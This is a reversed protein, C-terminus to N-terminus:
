HSTHIAWSAALFASLQNPSVLQTAAVYERAAQDVTKNASKLAEVAALYIRRDLGTLELREPDKARHAAVVEEIHAEVEAWSKQRKQALNPGEYYKVLFSPHPTKTGDKNTKILPASYIKFVMGGAKHEYPFNKPEKM